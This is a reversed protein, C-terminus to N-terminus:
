LRVAGQAENAAPALREAGSDDQALVARFGIYCQTSGQILVKSRTSSLYDSKNLNLYGAGRLVHKGSQGNYFDRCWEWVNGSMDYLGNAGVAYSGVPTTEGPTPGDEPNLHGARAPPPWRGRGGDWPYVDLIRQHKSQPSGERPEHLGVAVSWEWDAPLRYRQNPGIVNKGRERRTLWECFQTAAEWTVNAAAYVGRNESNEANQRWFLNTEQIFLQFDQIRTEWQSFFVNPLGQVPRFVMGLSNTFPRRGSLDPYKPTQAQIPDRAFVSLWGSPETTKQASRQSVQAVPKTDQTPSEQRRAWEEAARKMSDDAGGSAAPIATASVQNTPSSPMTAPSAPTTGGSPPVELVVRIGVDCFADQSDGKIRSASRCGLPGHSWSGGRLVRRNDGAPILWASGDAPAGSYSGHYVDECWEAVNGHMDHLGWANPPCLGVYQTNQGKFKALDHRLEVGFCYPTRTGARCAYEWEAETPLRVQLDRLTLMDGATGTGPVIRPNLKRCFAKAADWTVSEVPAKPRRDNFKSPNDGMVQEYQAQTVETKGMWFGRRINVRRVPGEDDLRGEEEAPSGMKFSGPPIWVLDMTTGGGLDLSLGMAPQAKAIAARLSALAAAYRENRAESGAVQNEAQAAEAQATKWEAEAHREVGRAGDGLAVILTEFDEEAAMRRERQAGALWEARPRPKRILFVSRARGNELADIADQCRGAKAKSEAQRWVADNHKRDCSGLWWWISAFPLLWLLTKAVRRIRAKRERQMARLEDIRAELGAALNRMEVDDPFLKDIEDGMALADAERGRRACKEFLRNWEKLWGVKAAALHREAEEAHRLPGHAGLALYAQWAHVSGTWSGREADAKATAVANRWEGAERQEWAAVKLADMKVRLASADPFRAILKEGFAVAETALGKKVWSASQREWENEWATQIIAQQKGAEAAFEGNPYDKLYRQVDDCAQGFAKARLHEEAQALALRWTEGEVGRQAEKLQRRAEDAHCGQAQTKLYGAYAEAAVGFDNAALSRNAKAEANRWAAEDIQKQAAALQAAANEDDPNLDLYGKLASELSTWDRRESAAAAQREFAAMQDSKRVAEAHLQSTKELLKRGKNGPLRVGQPLLEFEKQIRSWRKELRQKEMRPWAEAWKLFGAVDTGCGVCFAQHVSNKRDCEPCNRTLGAGCNGCYEAAASNDVGCSPCLNVAAPAGAGRSIKGSGSRELDTLFEDASFYREEPNNKVCRLIIPALHAPMKDPDVQDPVEETLMEYFTKGLAYIDATHNVNKADRRQEPPMYYPTGMGYGSLSLDSESGVRALGFDVIKPVLEEGEKALLINAPKIDRHVLNKKHACALGKAVGKILEVTQAEPILGKQKLLDRLSGGQVLEIVLYDGDADRGVDYIEVINRHKIQAIAQAERRFRARALEGGAGQSREALLRKVAVMRGLKKDRAKWVKAFGGRGLEELLEYNASLPIEEIASRESDGGEGPGQKTKLDGSSPGDALPMAQLTPRDGASGDQEMDSARSAVSASAGCEPCFKFKDPIEAKCKSCNM